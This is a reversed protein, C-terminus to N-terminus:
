SFFQNSNNLFSKVNFNTVDIYSKKKKGGRKKSGSISKSRSRKKGRGGKGGKKNSSGTGFELNVIEFNM